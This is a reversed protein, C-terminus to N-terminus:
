RPKATVIARVLKDGCQTNSVALLRRAGAAASEYQITLDVDTPPLAGAGRSPWEILLVASPLLLDRVGLPEVERPDVLRYLDLHYLHLGCAEYSEVLTYTPSRVPGPVGLAALFGAVLTTKGAGLEGEVGIVIPGQTISDPGAKLLAQALSAGVFRMTEPTAINLQM